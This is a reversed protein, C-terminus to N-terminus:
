QRLTSEAPVGRRAGATSDARTRVEERAAGGDGPHPKRTDQFITSDTASTQRGVAPVSWGSRAYPGREIM